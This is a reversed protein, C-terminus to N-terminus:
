LLRAPAAITAKGNLDLLRGPSLIDISAPMELVQLDAEVHPVSLERVSFSRGCCSHSLERPLMWAQLTLQVRHWASGSRAPRRRIHAAPYGRGGPVCEQGLYPHSRSGASWRSNGLCWHMSAHPTRLCRRLLDRCGCSCLDEGQRLTEQRFLELYRRRLPPLHVLLRGEEVEPLWRLLVGDPNAEERLSDSQIVDSGEKTATAGDHVLHLLAALRHYVEVGRLVLQSGQLAAPAKEAPCLDLNPQLLVELPFWLRAAISAKAPFTRLLSALTVRPLAAPPACTMAATPM